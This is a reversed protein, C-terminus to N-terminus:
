IVEIIIHTADEGDDEDAHLELIKGAYDSDFGELLQAVDIGQAQMEAKAEAPVFRLAFKALAIPVTVNVKTDKNGDGKSADIRIRIFKPKHGQLPPPAPARQPVHHLPQTIAAPPLPMTEEKSPGLAKLLSAAQEVNITGLALLDLIRRREESRAVAMMAPM